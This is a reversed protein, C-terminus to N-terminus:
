FITLESTLLNTESIKYKMNLVFSQLNQKKSRTPPSIQNQILDWSNKQKM